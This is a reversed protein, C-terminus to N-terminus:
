SLKFGLNLAHIKTSASLSSSVRILLKNQIELPMVSIALTKQNPSTDRVTKYRGIEAHIQLKVTVGADALPIV